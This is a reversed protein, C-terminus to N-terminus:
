RLNRVPMSSKVRWVDFTSSTREIMGGYLGVGGCDVGTAPAGTGVGGGVGDIVPPDADVDGADSAPGTARDVVPAIAIGDEPTAGATRM